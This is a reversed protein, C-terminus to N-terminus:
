APSNATNILLLEAKSFRRERRLTRIVDRLRELLAREWPNENSLSEWLDNIAVELSDVSTGTPLVVLFRTPAVEVLRLWPIKRLCQSPGVILVAMGPQIEVLEVPSRGEENMPLAAETAKVVARARDSDILALRALTSEPLTITVPRRPTPFKAPRGRKM